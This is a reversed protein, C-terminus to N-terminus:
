ALQPRIKVLGDTTNPFTLVEDAHDPGPGTVEFEDTCLGFEQLTRSQYEYAVDGTTV